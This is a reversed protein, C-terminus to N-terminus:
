LARELLAVTPTLSVNRWAIEREVSGREIGLEDAVSQFATSFASLSLPVLNEERCWGLYNEYLMSATLVNDEAPHLRALMFADVEGLREAPRVRVLEPMVPETPQAPLAERWPTTVLYLGLGSGAEVLLALLLALGLQVDEGRFTRDFWVALRSIAAAQPDEANSAAPVKDLKQRLNSLEGNLRTAEKANAFEIGLRRWRECPERVELRNLVCDQSVDGVTKRGYVPTALVDAREQEIVAPARTTGLADRASKARAYRDKLDQYKEAGGQREAAKAIRHQAAFGVASSFSYLTFIGFVAAGAVVALRDRKRIGWAIAFPMMAKICDAAGAVIGYLWADFETDASRYAMRFNLLISGVILVVSALIGLIVLADIFYNSDKEKASV